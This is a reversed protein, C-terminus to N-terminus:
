RATSRFYKTRLKSMEFQEAIIKTKRPPLLGVRFFAFYQCRFLAPYRFNTQRLVGFALIIASTPPLASYNAIVTGVHRFQYVRM